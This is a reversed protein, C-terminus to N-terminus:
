GLQHASMTGACKSTRQCPQRPLGLSGSGWTSKSRHTINPNRYTNWGTELLLNFVAPKESLGHGSVKRRRESYAPPIGSMSHDAPLRVSTMFHHCSTRHSGPSRTPRDWRGSSWLGPSTAVARPSSRFPWVGKCRAACAPRFSATGQGVDTRALRAPRQREPEIAQRFCCWHSGSRAPLTLERQM